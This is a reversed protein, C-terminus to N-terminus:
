DCAPCAGEGCAANGAPSSPKEAAKGAKTGGAAKSGGGNSGGNKYDTIYFGSGKFILGSGASVLRTVKGEEGCSCVRIPPDTMRQNVEFAKGCASCQYEYVPM